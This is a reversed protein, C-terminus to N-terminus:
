GHRIVTLKSMYKEHAQMVKTWEDENNIGMKQKRRWRGTKDDMRWLYTVIKDHGFMNVLAVAKWWKQTKYITTYELVKVTEHVPLPGEPFKEESM